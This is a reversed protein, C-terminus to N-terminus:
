NIAGAYLRHRHLAVSSFKSWNFLKTNKVSNLMWCPEWLWKQFIKWTTQLRIKMSQATVTVWYSEASRDTNSDICVAAPSTGKSSLLFFGVGDEINIIKKKFNWAKTVKRKRYPQCLPQRWCACYRFVDPLIWLTCQIVGNWLIDFGFDFKIFGLFAASIVMRLIVKFYHYDMFIAYIHMGQICKKDPM